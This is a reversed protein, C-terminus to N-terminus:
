RSKSLISEYNTLIRVAFGLNFNFNPDLSTYPYKRIDYLRQIDPKITQNYILNLPRNYSILSGRNDDEILIIKKSEIETIDDPDTPFEKIRLATDINKHFVFKPIWQYIWHGIVLISTNNHGVTSYNDNQFILRTTIASAEMHISTINIMILMISGALGFTLICVIISNLMRRLLRSKSVKNGLDNAMVAVAICLAPVILVLHFYQVWGILYSFILFPSIWLLLFINKRIVAFAVGVLSCICLAPDILFFSALSGVFGGNSTRNQQRIIGDVWENFHGTSLSYAPWLLPILIVPILWLALSKMNRNSNKIILFSVLPILTISPIKTYIATGLFIGSLLVYLNNTIHSANKETDKPKYYSIYMSFLVGSLLLPLLINDLYIRRLIWTIPMVAFLMCSIFAVNQNYQKKVILFLIITDVVALLGMVIRPVAYLMQISGLDGPQPHLSDPYGIGKFIVALFIQGFYPHDYPHDFDLETEQPGQGSLVELARRM